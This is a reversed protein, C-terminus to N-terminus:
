RTEHVFAVALSRVAKVFEAAPFSRTNGLWRAIARRRDVPLDAYARGTRLRVGLAILLAAVTLGTRTVEGAGAIRAAVWATADARVAAPLPGFELEVLDDAFALLFSARLHSM